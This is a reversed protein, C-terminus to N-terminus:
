RLLRDPRWNSISDAPAAGRALTIWAACCQAAAIISSKLAILKDRFLAAPETPATQSPSSSFPSPWHVWRHALPSVPEAVALAMAM